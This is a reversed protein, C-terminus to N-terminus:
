PRELERAIVRLAAARRRLPEVCTLPEDRMEDAWRNLRGAEDRLVNIALALREAYLTTLKGDEAM